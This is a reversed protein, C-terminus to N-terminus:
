SLRNLENSVIYIISVRMKYGIALSMAIDIFVIYNIISVSRYYPIYLKDSLSELGHFFIKIQAKSDTKKRSYLSGM